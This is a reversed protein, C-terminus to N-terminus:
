KFGLRHLMQPVLKDALLEASDIVDYGRASVYAAYNMGAVVILVIGEPFQRALEKAFRAGEKTGKGGEKVVDFDSSEMIKGDCVIVYGVSSRLNGTRDTYSGSDRAANVCAEGIYRLNYIIAKKIRELREDIYRNIESQPTTQKISM